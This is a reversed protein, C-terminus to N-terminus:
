RIGSGIPVDKDVTLLSIIGESEAALVMGQSEIGFIKATALNALFIVKKGVMEEPAYFERMGAVATRVEDGIDVTLKLLKKSGEVAEASVIKGVVLKLKAFDDITIMPKGKYAKPEGSAPKPLVELVPLKRKIFVPSVDGIKSGPQLGGWKAQEPLNAGQQASDGLQSLMKAAASPIFPQLMRLIIRGTELVSYLVSNLREREGDRDLVWPKEHDIFINAKSILEWVAELAKRFDLDDLYRCYAKFTSGSMERLEGGSAGTDEPIRGSFYKKCMSLSRHILNSLDNALDSNYRKLLSRESFNGDQGFQIDRMLFYRVADAGFEKALYFPDVVNGVSKSMKQGSVQLWGHNYLSKPLPIDASMLMAPWYVCHFKLIDKGLLHLDCPWYREFMNEDTGFGIGTLYNILADIWVYLTYGEANPIQIGWSLNSRSICLDKLGQEVFSRAENMRFDPRIFDPHADYHELLPKAYKSLAFFFARERFREVPRGCDPCKGDRVQLNTLFNEEFKCYWGEYEGEYIDGKALMRELFKLVGREHRPETTRIFDDNAIEFETLLRKWVGAVDDVYRQPDIGKAAAASQVKQGHEDMGTLFMVDYGMARKYRSIVDAAITTYANGIHPVSNAYYIPTTVYFTDQSM